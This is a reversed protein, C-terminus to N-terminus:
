NPRRNATTALRRPQPGAATPASGRVTIAPRSIPPPSISEKRLPSPSIARARDGGQGRVAQTVDLCVLGCRRQPRQGFVAVQHADAGLGDVPQVDQESLQQGGAGCGVQGGIACRRQQSGHTGALQQGERGEGADGRDFDGGAVDNAM